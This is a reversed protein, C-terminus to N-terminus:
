GDGRRQLPDDWHSGNERLQDPQVPVRFPNDHRQHAPNGAPDRGAGDPDLVSDRSPQDHDHAGLNAHQNRDQRAHRHLRVGPQNRKRNARSRVPRGQRSGRVHDRVPCLGSSRGYLRWSGNYPGTLFFKGGSVTYPDGGVGVGVTAEGILSNPGCQGSDAQPEPCLEVNSLLGSLGEPLHAVVSQMNQEGNQRTLSLTFPSFAGSQLNLAGGTLSPHFPLSAGPCPSGNPGNTVTYSSSTHVTVEAEDGPSTASAPEASWPVFTAKTTYTGCRTPSALPAREGGFFHAEFDEFALQPTNKFTTVIQGLAECSVGPIPQGNANLPDEGAGKCLTIEGPLKVLSGSVPDEAVIYMAMLSSFPNAEQAALYVYGNLPQNVPLLPSKITVEGIKSANPCFNVGPDLPEEHGAKVAGRTGPLYSLFKPSFIGPEVGPDFEEFGNVTHPNDAEFGVLGESCAELGDSAAPNVAFGPPLAVVTERLASQAVSQGNLQGEQPIHIKVNLGTPTSAYTDDPKVELSPEFPLQNCGSLEPMPQESFAAESTFAHEFHGPNDTWSDAEAESELPHGSCSTPLAFFPPPNHVEEPESQCKGFRPPELCGAYSAAHRPDGPVGWFTVQARLNPAVEVINSTETTVGYDEGNRVSANIFIPTEKTPLFGFRAPEGAVPELNFVPSHFTKLGIETPENVRVTSVGVISSAPCREEQFDPLTCRAFPTPNGIVGPPLKSVFDKILGGAPEVEPEGTLGTVFEGENLDITFTTQFPHSGAQVAPTGDENEPTVEYAEFGFPTTQGEKAITIPRAISVRRSAGGGAISVKNLEGTHAESGLDVGIRVEIQGYPGLVPHVAGSETSVFKCTVTEPEGPTALECTVQGVPVGAGSENAVGEYEIASVGAPLKDKIVIPNTEGNAGADGLNAADIFLQGDPKAKIGETAEKLLKAEVVDSGVTSVKIPLQTSTGGKIVFRTAGAGREPDPEETVKVAGTGYAEELKKEINEATPEPLGFAGGSFFEQFAPAELILYTADPIGETEGPVTILEQEKPLGPIAPHGSGPQLYTPRAGANLHWWPACNECAPTALAPSSSLALIGLLCVLGALPALRRRASILSPAGIGQAPLLGRLTARVGTTRAIRAADRTIAPRATQEKPNM